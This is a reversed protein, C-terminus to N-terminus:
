GSEDSKVESWLRELLEESPEQDLLAVRRELERFRREFKGNARRLAVEPSISLHRAVNAISYLVDGIEDEIQESAVEVPAGIGNEPETNGRTHSGDGIAQELEELEEHLKALVGAVDPWDFLLQAARRGLKEARALGPLSAPIDDLLSGGGRERQKMMEWNALVQKTDEVLVDGFVHPHRRVMKHYIAGVVAHIDFWGREDAIQALFVIQLLLDGLEARLEGPDGDDIAQVVESAEELVFQRLSSPDQERDWPCGDPGRLTRMLDVLDVLDRRPIGGDAEM